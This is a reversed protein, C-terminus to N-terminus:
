SKIRNIAAQKLTVIIIQDETDIIPSSGPSTYLVSEVKYAGGNKLKVQEGVRPVQSGWWLDVERDKIHFAICTRVSLGLIM